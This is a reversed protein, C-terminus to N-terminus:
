QINKHQLIEKIKLIFKFCSLVEIQFTNVFKKAKAPFGRESISFGVKNPMSQLVYASVQTVKNSSYM